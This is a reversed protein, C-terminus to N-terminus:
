RPPIRHPISDEIRADSLRVEIRVTAAPAARRPESQGLQRPGDFLPTLRSVPSGTVQPAAQASAGVAAGAGGAAGGEAV